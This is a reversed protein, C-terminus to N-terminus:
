VIKPGFIGLILINRSQCGLYRLKYNMLSRREHAIPIFKFTDRPQINGLLFQSCGLSIERNELGGMHRFINSPYFVCYDGNQSSCVTAYKDKSM